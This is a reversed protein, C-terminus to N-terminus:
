IYTITNFLHAHRPQLLAFAKKTGLIQLPAKQIIRSLM